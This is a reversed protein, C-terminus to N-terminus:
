YTSSSPREQGANGTIFLRLREDSQNNLQESVSRTIFLFADMQGVNMARRAYLFEDDTMHQEPMELEEEFNEQQAEQNLIEFAHIQNFANELQRDRERFIELRANTARLDSERVLFSYRATDYDVILESENRFPVYQLLLSYYYNEPDSAAVFYPVRVVAPVNRIVMKSNDTLTILRQRTQREPEYIDVCEEPEQNSKEYHPEFLMAFELLCM